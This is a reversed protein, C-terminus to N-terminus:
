LDKNTPSPCPLGSWHEQRSFGLSQPAQHAETQPTVSLRVRSFQSLLLLGNSRSELVKHHLCCCYNITEHNGLTLFEPAATLAQQQHSAETGRWLFRELPEKLTKVVYHSPRLSPGLSCRLLWWAKM